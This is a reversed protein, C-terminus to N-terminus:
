GGYRLVRSENNSRPFFGCAVAIEREEEASAGEHTHTNSKWIKNVPRTFKINVFQNRGGQAPSFPAIFVLISVWGTLAAQKELTHGARECREKM